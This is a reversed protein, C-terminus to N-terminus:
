TRASRWFSALATVSGDVWALEGTLGRLVVDPIDAVLDGALDRETAVALRNMAAPVRLTGTTQQLAALQEYTAMDECLVTFERTIAGRGLLQIINRDSGPVHFEADYSQQAWGPMAAPEGDWLISFPVFAGLTANDADGFGALVRHRFLTTM